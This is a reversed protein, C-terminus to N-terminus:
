RCAVMEPSQQHCLKTVPSRQYRATLPWASRTARQCHSAQWPISLTPGNRHITLTFKRTRGRCDTFDEELRETDM